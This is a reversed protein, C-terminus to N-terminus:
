ITKKEKWMAKTVLREGHLIRYGKFKAAATSHTNLDQGRAPATKRM